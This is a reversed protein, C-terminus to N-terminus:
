ALGAAVAADGPVLALRVRQCGPRRPLRRGCPDLGRAYDLPSLAIAWCGLSQSWLLPVNDNAERRQGLPNASRRRPRLRCGIILCCRTRAASFWTSCSSIWTQPRSGVSRWAPASWSLALFLPWQEIGEFCALGEPEYHLRTSDEVVTQHGDRCLPQLWLPRWSVTSPPKPAPACSM